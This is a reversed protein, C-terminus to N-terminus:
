FLPVATVLYYESKGGTSLGKAYGVQFQTDLYYLLEIEFRLQAGVGYKLNSLHFDGQFANGVDGFVAGSIRRLYVPFTAYGSELTLLPLRYEASAVHFQDGVLSNPDYGRLFFCCQPRRLFLSRVM